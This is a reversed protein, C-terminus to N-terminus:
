VHIDEPTSAGRRSQRRFLHSLLAALNWRLVHWLAAVGDRWTIKKGEQYTRGRYNVGVEYVRLGRHAVKATFEPEFGFRDSCLRVNEMCVRRFAKAGTEMDTINLNTWINSWLTLIRNGLSHWFFLTRHPQGLFRSGYVVDADGALLPALLRPWDAPDYEFDADHILVIDGRAQKLGSRVAAGKGCNKEHRILTVETQRGALLAGTSDTSGDDVVIIERRVVGELPQAVCRSVVRGITAQENYAPIIISLIM